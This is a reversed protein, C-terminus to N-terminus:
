NANLGRVILRVGEMSPIDRDGDHLKMWVWDDLVSPLERLAEERTSGQAWAGDVGVVDAIVVGDVKRTRAHDCAIAVWAKVLSELPDGFVPADDGGFRGTADSLTDNVHDPPSPYEVVEDPMPYSTRSAM